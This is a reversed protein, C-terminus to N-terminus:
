NENKTEGEVDKGIAYDAYMKLEYKGPALAAIPLVIPLVLLSSIWIYRAISKGREGCEGFIPIAIICLIASFIALVTCAEGFKYAAYLWMYTENIIM